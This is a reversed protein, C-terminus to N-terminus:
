SFFPMKAEEKEIYDNLIKLAKEKEEKSATESKIIEYEKNLEKPINIM